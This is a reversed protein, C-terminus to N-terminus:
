HIGPWPMTTVQPLPQSAIVFIECSHVFSQIPTHGDNDLMCVLDRDIVIKLVDPDPPKNKTNRCTWHLPSRGKGDIAMKLNPNVNILLQVVEASARYLCAAHIPLLGSKDPWQVPMLSADLLMKVVDAPPDRCCVLHLPSAYHQSEVTEAAIKKQEKSVIGALYDRLTDWAMANNDGTAVAPIRHCINRLLSFDTAQVGDWKAGSLINDQDMKMTPVVAAPVASSPIVHSEVSSVVNSIHSQAKDVPINSPVSPRLGDPETEGRAAPHTNLFVRVAEEKDEGPVSAQPPLSEVPSVVADNRAVHGPSLPVAAADLLMRLVGDSAGQLCALHVPRFGFDDTVGTPKSSVDLLARVVAPPPRRCCVVHLPTRSFSGGDGNEVVSKAASRELNVLHDLAASWAPDSEGGMPAACLRHLTSTWTLPTDDGTGCSRVLSEVHRRPVSRVGCSSLERVAQALPVPPGEGGKREVGEGGDYTKRAATSLNSLSTQRLLAALRAMEWDTMEESSPDNVWRRSIERIVTALPLAEDNGGIGHSAPTPAIQVIGMMPSHGRACFFGDEADFSDDGQDWQDGGVSESSGEFAAYPLDEVEDNAITRDDGQDDDDQDPLPRVQLAVRMSRRRTMARQTGAASITRRERDGGGGGGRRGDGRDREGDFKSKGRSFGRFPREERKEPFPEFAVHFPEHVVPFPDPHLHNGFIKHDMPIKSSGDGILRRDIPPHDASEATKFRDAGTTERAARRYGDEGSSETLKAVAGDDRAAETAAANAETVAAIPFAVGRDAPSSIGGRDEDRSPRSPRAPGAGVSPFEVTDVLVSGDAATTERSEFCSGDPRRIKTTRYVTGNQGTVETTKLVTGDRDTTTM